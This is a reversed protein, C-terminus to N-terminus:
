NTYRRLGPTEHKDKHFQLELVAGQMQLREEESFIGEDLKANFSHFIELMSKPDITTRLEAAVELLLLQVSRNHSMTSVRQELTRDFETQNPQFVNTM